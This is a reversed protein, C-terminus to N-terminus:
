DVKENMKIMDTFDESWYVARCVNLHSAKRNYPLDLLLVKKGNAALQMAIEEKDDIMIDLNKQLIYQIKAADDVQFVVKVGKIGHLWLQLKTLIRVTAGVIGQECTRKRSTIIEVDHHKKLEMICAKAGSRFKGLLCYYLYHTNWYKKLIDEAEHERCNQEKLAYIDDLDYGDKNKIELGYKRKMYKQSHAIIFGSFDTLTGDIDIGIKM